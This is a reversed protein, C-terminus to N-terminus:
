RATASSPLAPPRRCRRAQKGTASVAPHALGHATYVFLAFYLAATLERSVFEEVSEGLVVNWTM